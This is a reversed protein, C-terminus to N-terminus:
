ELAALVQDVAMLEWEATPASISLLVQGDQSDFVVSLERYPKGASNRGERVVATAPRGRVTLDYAMSTEMAGEDRHNRFIVGDAQANLTDPDIHVYAPAQALYLHRDPAGATFAAVKFGAMETAFQATYRAPLAIPLIDDAVGAVAAPSQEVSRAVASAVTRGTVFLAGAFILSAIGAITVIVVFIKWGQSM